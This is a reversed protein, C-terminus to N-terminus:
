NPNKAETHGKQVYEVRTQENTHPLPQFVLVSLKDGNDATLHFHYYTGAVIQTFVKNIKFSNHSSGLKTNIHGKLQNIM